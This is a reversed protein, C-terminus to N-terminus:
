KKKCGCCAFVNYLWAILFGSIFGDIFGILGGILSGIISADYGIYLQGVGAVFPKGYMYLHALLGMILLAVGWLVGLSLGLAVPHIRSKEM